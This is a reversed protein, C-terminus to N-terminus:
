RAVSVDSPAGHPEACVGNIARVMEELRFPKGLHDNMGAALCLARPATTVGIIPTDNGADRMRKAATVGDMGPMNVDMIIVDYRSEGAAKLADLGNTAADVDAGLKQLLHRCTNRITADHAVVLVRLGRRIRLALHQQNRCQGLRAEIAM